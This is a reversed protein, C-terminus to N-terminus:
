KLLLQTLLRVGVGTAAKPLYSREKTSHASGAIDLHAWPGKVFEQLFSAGQCAGGKRPYGSNKLDAFKSKIDETFDKHLPMPWVLERSYKASNLIKERLSDDNCFLGSYTNGLAMVMAGTLTALDITFEPNFAMGYALADALILRGEADTSIIEVTQGDFIKVVDGPRYAKGDPMNEVAPILGIIRRKCGLRALAQM